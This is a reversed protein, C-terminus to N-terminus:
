FREIRQRDDTDDFHPVKLAVDRHLQNDHALYVAGMGGQGILREIRYRGFKGSLPPPESSRNPDHKSNPAWSKTPEVTALTTRLAIQQGLTTAYQPFRLQFGAADPAEGKEERLLFEHFILDVALEPDDRLTPLTELYSEASAPKSALWRQRQDIRVIE